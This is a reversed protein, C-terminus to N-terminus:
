FRDRETYARSFLLELRVETHTDMAQACSREIYTGGVGRM